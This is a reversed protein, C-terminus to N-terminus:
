VATTPVRHLHDTARGVQDGVHDTPAAVRDACGEEPRGPQEPPQGQGPSEHGDADAAAANELWRSARLAGQEGGDGLVREGRGLQCGRLDTAADVLSGALCAM